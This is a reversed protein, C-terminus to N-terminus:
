KTRMAKRSRLKALKMIFILFDISRIFTTPESSDALHFPLMKLISGLLLQMSEVSPLQQFASALQLRILRRPTEDEEVEGEEEEVQEKGQGRQIM